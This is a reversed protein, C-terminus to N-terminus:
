ATSKQNVCWMDFWRIGSRILVDETNEIGLRKGLDTNTIRDELKVGCMLRVM